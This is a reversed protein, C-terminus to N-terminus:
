PTKRPRGPKGKAVPHRGLWTGDTFRVGLTEVRERLHDRYLPNTSNMQRVFADRWKAPVVRDNEIYALPWAAYNPEDQRLDTLACAGCNDPDRHNCGDYHRFEYTPM